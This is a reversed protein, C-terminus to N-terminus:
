GDTGAADTETTTGDTVPADGAGSGEGPAEPPGDVGDPLTGVSGEPISIDTGPTAEPNAPDLVQGQDDVPLDSGDPALDSPAVLNGVSTPLAPTEGVPLLALSYGERDAEFRIEGFGETYVEDPENGTAELPNAWYSMTLETPEGGCTTEEESYVAGDPTKFGTDTVELQVQDFFHQMKANNGASRLSYPHIHILPDGQHAHIGLVDPGIDAYPGIEKGCVNVSFAAHWHDYAGGQTLQALPPTDNEGMGENRDRAIAVVAIGLVLIVAIAAPFLWNSKKSSAAASSQAAVRAAKKASSSTAM